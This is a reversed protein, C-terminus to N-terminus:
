TFLLASPLRRRRAGGVLGIVDQAAGFPCVWPCYPNKGTRDFALLTGALLV